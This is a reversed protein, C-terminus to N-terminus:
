NRGSFNNHFVIDAVKHRALTAKSHILNAIRNAIRYPMELRDLLAGDFQIVVRGEYSVVNVSYDQNKSLLRLEISNRAEKAIKAVGLYVEEAEAVSLSLHNRPKDWSLIVFDRDQDIKVEM